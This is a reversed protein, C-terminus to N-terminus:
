NSKDKNESTGYHAVEKKILVEKLLDFEEKTLHKLAIGQKYEKSERSFDEYDWFLTNIIFKFNHINVEKKVIIELARQDKVCMRRYENLYPIKKLEDEIIDLLEDDFYHSCDVYNERLKEIAKLPTLGEYM